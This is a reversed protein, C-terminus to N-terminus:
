YQNRLYLMIPDDNEEDELRGDIGERDIVWKVFRPMDEEPMQRHYTTIYETDKGVTVSKIEGWHWEDGVKDMIYFPRHNLDDQGKMTEFISQPAVVAACKLEPSGYPDPFQIVSLQGGALAYIKMSVGKFYERGWENDIEDPAVIRMFENGEYDPLFFLTAQFTAYYPLVRYEYLYRKDHESLTDTKRDSIGRFRNKFIGM